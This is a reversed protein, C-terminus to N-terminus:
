AYVGKFKRDKRYILSDLSLKGAGNFMLFLAVAMLQVPQFYQPYTQGLHVGTYAIIFNILLVFGVPRVFLGIIMLIGCIFQVYVSLYACYLPFPFNHAALFKEFEEMREFSFVNDQSFYIIHFGFALRIFFAGYEKFKELFRLSIISAFSM